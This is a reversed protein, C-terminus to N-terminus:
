WTACRKGAKGAERREEEGKIKIKTKL